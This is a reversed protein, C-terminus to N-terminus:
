VLELTKLAQVIPPHEWLWRVPLALGPLQGARYIGEDDPAILQYRGQQDLQYFEAQERQPDILWYEPIGAEQYEYFKEGRDRGASEPSVIEVVLDASGDLYTEKLRERHSEDVFMLDPERSSDPLKMQFPASLIEGLKREEVFVRLIGTLFDSIRQHRKSAPSTMIVRGDVWEALTDEDAWNLFEEFSIRKSNGEEELLDLLRQRLRQDKKQEYLGSFASESIKKSM